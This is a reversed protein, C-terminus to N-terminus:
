YTVATVFHSHKVYYKMGSCKMTKFIRFFQATSSYKLTRKWDFDM